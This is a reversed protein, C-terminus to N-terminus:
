RWYILDSLYHVALILWFLPVYDGLPVLVPKILRLLLCVLVIWLGHLGFFVRPYKQNYAAIRQYFRGSPNTLERYLGRINLRILYGVASKFDLILAWLLHDIDILVGVATAALVILVAHPFPIAKKFASVSVLAYTLSITLSAGGHHHPLM